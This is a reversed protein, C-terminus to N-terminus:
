SPLSARKAGRDGSRAVAAVALAGLAVAVALIVAGVGLWTQALAGSQVTFFRIM